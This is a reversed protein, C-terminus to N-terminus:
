SLHRVEGTHKKEDYVPWDRWHIDEKIEKLLPNLRPDQVPCQNLNVLKHSNKQYYGAQVQGIASIAVPYTAKNRYGLFQSLEDIKGTVPRDVTFNSFGGIKELAQRVREQKAALQYEFDVHQWQCGGCKDAVICNPRIRHESRTVLEELKGTAYGSKVQVLRVKVRDGTVTDPVFVVLGDCRGIGEGTDTLDTIEIEIQSGQQYLNTLTAASAPSKSKSM